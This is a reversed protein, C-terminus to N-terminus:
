RPGAVTTRERVVEAKAELTTSAHPHCSSPDCAQYGFKCTLTVPGAQASEKVLLRRRFEFTGEYSLRGQPGRDPGPVVWEGEPEVGQPLGLNLSTAVESGTSGELATIHWSPATQVRVVLTLYEGPGARGPSCELEAVVPDRRTPSAASSLPLRPLRSPPILSPPAVLFKYGGAETFFIRSRNTDLWSRWGKADAFNETTYRKLVRMALEARDGRELMAVCADLQEVKDNPPGVARADDDVAIEIHGDHDEGPRLWHLNEEVWAQYVNPDTAGQQRIREPFVQSLFYLQIKRNKEFEESSPGLTPFKRKFLEPDLMAKAGRASLLANNRSFPYKELQRVVPKQGDFRKIYCIANAFCRRGEPTMGGPPASFGWLFFNGHRGLAVSGVGRASVGGASLIEADPSDEFLYANSILGPDLEPFDREQVKWVRMSKGITPGGDRPTVDAPMPVEQITPNVEFPKHFLDHSTAMEHAFNDLCLCRWDIKLHLQRAIMEGACGILITPRKYKESIAPVKPYNLDQNNKLVKGEKDRPYVSTWDFIVVDHGAVQEEKFTQYDATDVQKFITRLHAVFDKERASSPNGAYLIKIDIPGDAAASPGSLAAVMLGCLMVSIRM